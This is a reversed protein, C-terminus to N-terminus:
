LSAATKVRNGYESYNLGQKILTAKGTQRSYIRFGFNAANPPTYLHLSVAIENPDPNTITHLGLKDSMYTVEEQGFTQEHMVEPPGPNSHDPWKYRTEKLSGKLVKMICHANAHDHIPSGKSPNWVLILINSKGNGQDVLNRTYNSASDALAFQEWDAECSTYKRMLEQLKGEDVEDSDIGSTPGLTDRLDALLCQFPDLTHPSVRATACSDKSSSM